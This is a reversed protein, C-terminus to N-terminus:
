RGGAGGAGGAGGTGAGGYAGDAAGVGVSERQPGRCTQGDMQDGEYCAVCLEICQARNALAAGGAGKTDVAKDCAASCPGSAPSSCGVAFFVAGLVLTFLLSLARM